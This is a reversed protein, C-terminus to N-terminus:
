SRLAPPAGHLAEPVREGLGALGVRVQLHVPLLDVVAPDLVEAVESEVGFEEAVLALHVGVLALGGTEERDLLVGVEGVQQQPGDGVGAVGVAEGVQDAAEAVLQAPAGLQDGFAVEGGPGDVEEAPDDLGGLCAGARPVDVGGGFAAGPVEGAPEGRAAGLFPHPGGVEGLPDRGGRVGDRVGLGGAVAAVEDGGFEGVPVGGQGQGAGLLGGGRLLAFQGLGAGQVGGPLGGLGDQSVAGGGVADGADRGGDLLGLPVCGGGEGGAGLGGDVEDAGQVRRGRLGLVVGVLLLLPGGGELLDAVGGVPVGGGGGGLRLAGAALGSVQALAEGLDFLLGGFGDAGAPQVVARGVGVRGAGGEGGAVRLLRGDGGPVGGALRGAPGGLAGALRGGGLAAGFQGRGAGRVRGGRGLAGVLALPAGGLGQGRLFPEGLQEAQGGPGARADGLGAPVGVAVVPGGSGGGRVARQGGLFEVAEGVFQAFQEVVGDGGGFALQELQAGGGGVVGADEAREAVATQQRRSRIHQGRDLEEALVADGGQGAPAVEGLGDVGGVVRAHQGGAGLQDVAHDDGVRVRVGAGALDEAVRGQQRAGGDGDARGGGQEGRGRGGLRVGPVDEEYRRVRGHVVLLGGVLLPVRQACPRALPVLLDAGEGGAEALVALQRGPEGGPAGAARGSAERFEGPGGLLGAGEGLLGLGLQGLGARQPGLGVLAGGLGHM